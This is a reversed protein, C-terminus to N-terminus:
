FFRAPLTSFSSIFTNWYSGRQCVRTGSTGLTQRSRKGRGALLHIFFIVVFGANEVANQLFIRNEKTM